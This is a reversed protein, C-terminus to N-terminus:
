SRVVNIYCNALDKYEIGQFNVHNLQLYHHHPIQLTKLFFGPHPFLKRTM